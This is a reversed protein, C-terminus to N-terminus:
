PDMWVTCMCDEPEPECNFVGECAAFCENDYTVGDCTVPEYYEPCICEPECDRIEAGACDAFCSNSYEVGDCGMVPDFLGICFCDEPEPDCNLAGECAAFCENDYTVGECTGM